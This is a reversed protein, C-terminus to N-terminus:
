EENLHKDYKKNDLMCNICIIKIKDKRLDPSENSSSYCKENCEKCRVEDCWGPNEKGCVVIEAKKGKNWKKHKVRSYALLDAPVENIM